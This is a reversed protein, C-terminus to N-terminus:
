NYTHAKLGAKTALYHYNAYSSDLDIIEDDLQEGQENYCRLWGKSYISKLTQLLRSEDMELNGRLEDYSIVFYLEDLVLFEDESMEHSNEARGNM